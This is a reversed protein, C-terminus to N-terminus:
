QKILMEKHRDKLDSNLDKATELVSCPQGKAKLEM